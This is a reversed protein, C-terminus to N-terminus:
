LEDVSPRGTCDIWAGNEMSVYRLRARRALHRFQRFTVNRAETLLVGNYVLEVM